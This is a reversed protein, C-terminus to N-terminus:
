PSRTPVKIAKALEEAFAERINEPLTISTLRWRWQLLKLEFGFRHQRAVSQPVSINFRGLGYESAVYMQWANGVNKSSIGVAEAPVNPLVATPWGRTLFESLAEPSIVKAVVPDAVALAAGPVGRLLPRVQAGSRRVYAEVIQDSLSRRISEFYVHQKLTQIDRTEFAQLLMFMDHVPWAAYGVCILALFIFSLLAKRL